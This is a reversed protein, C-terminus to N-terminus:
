QEVMEIFWGLKLRDLNTLKPKDSLLNEKLLDQDRLYFRKVMFKMGTKKVKNYFNILRIENGVLGQKYLQALNKIANHQKALFLTNPELGNHQLPNDIHLISFGNRELDQAFLTDEHGYGQINENFRVTEFVSSHAFFNNTKFTGFPNELRKVIPVIERENGYFWHLYLERDTPQLGYNTGGYCVQKPNSTHGLYNKLYGNQSVSCDGDVFLLWEHSASSALLNRIKSRGINEDLELYTVGEFKSVERNMRRFEELSCDDICLIEGDVANKQLQERLQKIFARVDTNYVPVLISVM